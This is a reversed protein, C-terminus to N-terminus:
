MNACIHMHHHGDIRSPPSGYLREFEEVQRRYAYEFSTRLMPHYVLRRLKQPQLFRAVDRHCQVLMGDRVAGSFATTFNLHLGVDLNNARALEAARESDDMFVMASVASIRGERVCDLSRDTSERNRGWDDANIILM